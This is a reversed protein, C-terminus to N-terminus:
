DDNKVWNPIRDILASTGMAVSALMPRIRDSGPIGGTPLQSLADFDETDGVIANGVATGCLHALAVGHGSYGSSSYLGPELLRVSPWRSRTIGLTGGWAFDITTGQLSPFVTGMAKEVRETFDTPFRYGYNEGGGFLLRGDSSRRFYNVVFRSDAIAANSPLLKKIQDGLPETAVMFNNIPIVDQRAKPELGDLYGNMACVVTDTMIQAKDTHVRFRNSSTNLQEIRTVPSRESITAGHSLAAAAVGIALKLPHLHGSTGDYVGGFYDDSDIHERLAARDLAQMNAGPHKSLFTDVHKDLYGKPLQRHSVNVIGPQYEIDFGYEASIALVLQKARESLQWYRQSAALGLKGEIADHRNFGSGLQGGNRGSAGWGVRHAELICVRCGQRALTLAASLGTFGGGIICVDFYQPGELTAYSPVQATAAYWSSAHEGAQDNAYLLKM